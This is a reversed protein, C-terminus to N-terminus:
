KPRKDLTLLMPHVRCRGCAWTDDRAMVAAPQRPVPTGPEARAIVLTSGVRCAGLTSGEIRCRLQSPHCRVPLEFPTSGGESTHQQTQLHPHAVAVAQRAGVKWHKPTCESLWGAPVNEDDDEGFVDDFGIDADGLRSPGAPEDGQDGDPLPLPIAMSSFTSPAALSGQLMPPGRIDCAGDRRTYAIM